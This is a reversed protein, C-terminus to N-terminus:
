MYYTNIMVHSNKINLNKKEIEKGCDYCIAFGGQFFPKLIYKGCDPCTTNM